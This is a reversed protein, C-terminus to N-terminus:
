VTLAPSRLLVPDARYPDPGPSTPDARPRGGDFALGVHGVPDVGCVDQVYMNTVGPERVFATDTAPDYEENRVLADFRTAIVTYSIGPQAIPGDNLREIGPGGVVLDACAGCGGNHMFTDAAPYVGAARGVTVLALFSTGHTPPALAVVNRVKAGYGLVKPVYLSMFGGESHGVLSVQTAGTAELVEDIFAAIDAAGEDVPQLGYFPYRDPPSYDSAFTCYGEEALAPGIYSWNGQPDGGLGHLLIVPEPHAVSPQCSLDNYGGGPAADAVSSAGLAPGGFAMALLGIVTLVRRQM